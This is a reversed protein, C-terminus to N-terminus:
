YKTPYERVETIEARSNLGGCLDCVIAKCSDCTNYNPHDEKFIEKCIPCGKQLKYLNTDGKELASPAKASQANPAEDAPKMEEQKQVTPSKTKGSTVTEVSAHLVSAVKTSSEYIASGQDEKPPDVKPPQSSTAPSPQSKSSASTPNQSAPVLPQDGSKGVEFLSKNNDTVDVPLISKKQSAVPTEKQEAPGVPLMTKTQPQAPLTGSLQQM